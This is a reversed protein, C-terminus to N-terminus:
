IEIGRAEAAAKLGEQFKTGWERMKGLSDDREMVELTALGAARADGTGWFSGTAFVKAGAERVEEKGVLAALAYGNAIAKGWASMDPAVGFSRWASGLELRMGTRVEDHILLAGHEDCIERLGVAFEETPLEEDFGAPQRLPSTIIAALDGRHEEAAARVSELDNFEFYALGERDGPLTGQADPNCWPLAGHYAGNAVLVTR